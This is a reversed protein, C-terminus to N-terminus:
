DSRPIEKDCLEYDGEGGVGAGSGRHKHVQMRIRCLSLVNVINLCFDVKRYGTSKNEGSGHILLPHFFVIDGKKMLLDIKQTDDFKEHDKIGFYAKNVMGNWDPYEHDYFKVKHSKPVIKLAGNEITADELSAWAAVIKEAPGFPFYALDQHM